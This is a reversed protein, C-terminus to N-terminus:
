SGVSEEFKIMPLDTVASRLLELHTPVWDKYLAMVFKYPRWRDERSLLDFSKLLERHYTTRGDEIVPYHVFIQVRLHDHSISFGLPRRHLEDQRGALKFLEVVGRLARTMSHANKRSAIELSGTSSRLEATFFPFLMDDTGKFASTKNFEGLFPELKDFQESTFACSWLKFGLAYDPQPTPLVYRLARPTQRARPKRPDKADLSTSGDWPEDMSEVLGVLGLRGSCVELEASPVILQAIMRTLATENKEPLGDELYELADDDFATGAPTMCEKELLKRCSDEHGSAIGDKHRTM